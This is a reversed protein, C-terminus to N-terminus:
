MILIHLHSSNELHSLIEVVDDSGAAM